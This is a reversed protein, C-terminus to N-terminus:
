LILLIHRQNMEIVEENYKTVFYVFKNFESNQRNLNPRKLEYSYLSKNSIVKIVWELDDIM